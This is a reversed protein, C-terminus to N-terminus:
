SCGMAPWEWAALTARRLFETSALRARMKEFHERTIM